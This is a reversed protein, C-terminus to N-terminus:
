EHISDALVMVKQTTENRLPVGYEDTCKPTLEETHTAGFKSEAGGVMRLCVTLRLNDVTYEFLVQSGEDMIMWLMPEFVQREGLPRVVSGDM